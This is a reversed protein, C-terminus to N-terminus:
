ACNCAHLILASQLWFMGESIRNMSERRGTQKWHYSCELICFQSEAQHKTPTFSAKERHPFFVSQSLKTSLPYGPATDQVLCTILNPLILYAPRTVRKYVILPRYLNQRPSRHCLSQKSSSLKSLFINCHIKMLQTQPM